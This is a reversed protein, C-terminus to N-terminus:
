GCGPIMEAAKACVAGITEDNVQTQGKAFGMDALQLHQFNNIGAEELNKRACNLPCGDIVLIREAAETTKVIGSVKGGIGALCFMSGAKDRNLKRAASDALFGVDAAGSCSFILTPSSGCACVSM